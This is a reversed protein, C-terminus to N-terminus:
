DYPPISKVSPFYTRSIEMLFSDPYTYLLLRRYICLIHLHDRRVDQFISSVIAAARDLSPYSEPQLPLELDDFPLSVNRLQLNKALVNPMAKKQIIEKVTDVDADPEVKIVFNFNLPDGFILCSLSLLHIPSSSVPQQVGRPTPAPTGVGAFLYSDCFSFFLRRRESIPPAGVVVHLTDPNDLDTFISHLGKLAWLSKGERLRLDNVKAELDTDEDVPISVKWVQLSDTTIDHFARKKEEKIAKKLAGVDKNRDIEVTFIRASDEGLVWCNLRLLTGTAM